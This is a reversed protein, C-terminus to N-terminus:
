RLLSSSLSPACPRYRDTMKHTHRPWRQHHCSSRHIQEILQMCNTDFVIRLILRVQKEISSGGGGSGGGGGGGSGHHYKSGGTKGSQQNSLQQNVQQGAASVSIVRDCYSGELFIVGSPRSSSEAEWYFLVNQKRNILNLACWWPGLHFDFSVDRGDCSLVVRRFWFHVLFTSFLIFFLRFVDVSKTSSLHTHTHTHTYILWQPRLLSLSFAFSFLFSTSRSTRNSAKSTYATPCM